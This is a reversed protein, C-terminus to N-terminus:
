RSLVRGQRIFTPIDLYSDSGNMTATKKENQSLGVSKCNKERWMKMLTDIRIIQLININALM